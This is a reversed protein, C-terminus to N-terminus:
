RKNRPDDEASVYTIGGPRIGHLQILTEGQTYAYHVTGKKGNSESAADRTPTSRAMSGISLRRSARREWLAFGGWLSPRM